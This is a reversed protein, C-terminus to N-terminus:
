FLLFVWDHVLPDIDADGPKGFLFDLRHDVADNVILGAGPQLGVHFGANVAPQARFGAVVVQGVVLVRVKRRHALDLLGDPLHEFFPRTLGSNMRWAAMMAWVSHLRHLRQAWYQGKPMSM